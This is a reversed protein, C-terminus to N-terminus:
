VVHSDTPEHDKVYDLIKSKVISPDGKVRIRKVSSPMIGNEIIVIVSKKYCEAKEVREWKYFTGNHIIGRQTIRPKWLSRLLWALAVNTWVIMPIIHNDYYDLNSIQKLRIFYFLLGICLLVFIVSFSIEVLNRKIIKPGIIVPKWKRVKLYYYVPYIWALLCASIYIISM